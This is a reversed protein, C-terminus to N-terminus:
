FTSLDSNNIVEPSFVKCFNCRSAELAQYIHFIAAADQCPVFCCLALSAFSRLAAKLATTKEHKRLLALTSSVRLEQDLAILETSWAGAVIVAGMKEISHRFNAYPKCRM